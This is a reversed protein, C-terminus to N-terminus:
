YDPPIQYYQLLFKAIEAFAPAASDSSFRVNKPKSFKTLIVFKPEDVPAFGVFTHNTEDSYGKGSKQGVM